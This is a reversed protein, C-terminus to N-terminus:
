YYTILDHWVKRATALDFLFNYSVKLGEAFSGDGPLRVLMGHPWQTPHELIHRILTFSCVHFLGSQVSCWCLLGLAECDGSLQTM